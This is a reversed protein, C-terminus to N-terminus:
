NNQFNISYMREQDSLPTLKLPFYTGEAWEDIMHGFLPNGPNGSQSGPYVGHGVVGDPNLEVVMRWSPGHNKSAANVISHNGGINISETNFPTLGLLHNVSTNKFRAWSYDDDNAMVWNELSDIAALYADTILGRRDEFRDPTMIRDYFTLSDFNRLLYHTVYTNPKDVAVRITDFEDWTYDYLFDQWMEFVSPAKKDPNNFYDWSSLTALYDLHNSKLKTSDVFELMTPLIESAIYNYNDNQLQKMDEVTVKEITELRENIRRGRYYEFRSAYVYYPYTADVPHQNASSLYGKESGYQYMEQEYPIYSKTEHSPLSGNMLFKGQDQYKIPFNGPLRLAIDGSQSAFLVNQPPGSFYALADEYDSINDAKNLHYMAKFTTAEQHAEWRMAYNIMEGQGLFNKDYVVPGHHVYVITDYYTEGNKVYFTEISKETKFWQNNYRYESRNNDRFTINYWDVQDRPSNTVGWAISDNFGILTIPTGPVTVGMVNIEPTQIHSAYWISPATLRLDPENAFLPYGTDSKNGDVTFNNSGNLPDPKEITQRPMSFPFDIKEDSILSPDFSWEHDSPIVPSLNGLQEPFLVNFVSDGLIIRANTNELDSEGRSLDNSLLAYAMCSKLTSWKEPTYNLLKFEIPYDRPSLQDIYENVGDTYAQLISWLAEDQQIKKHFDRTMMPLGIRRNLRDFDLAREGVVESLRGFVLRAYFDMQWLRHYATLYGLVFYADQHNESKIHPILIKDFQVSVKGNLKDSEINEPLNIPDKEANQLFGHHPSLLAGIPPNDQYPFNLFYFLGLCIISFFVFRFIKM